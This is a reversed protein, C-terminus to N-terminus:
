QEITRSVSLTKKEFLKKSGLKSAYVLIEIIEKLHWVELNDKLMQIDADILTSLLKFLSEISDQNFQLDDLKQIDVMQYLKAPPIYIINGNLSYEVGKGLLINFEEEETITKEIDKIRNKGLHKELHAKAKQFTEKM